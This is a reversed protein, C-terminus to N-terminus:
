KLSNYLLFYFLNIISQNNLDFNKDKSFIMQKIYSNNWIITGIFVWVSFLHCPHEFSKVNLVFKM